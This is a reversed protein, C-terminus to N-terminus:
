RVFVRNGFRLDIYQLENLKGEYEQLIVALNNLQKLGDSDDSLDVYIDFGDKISFSAWHALPENMGISEVEIMYQGINRHVDSLVEVGHPTIVQANPALEERSQDFVVFIDDSQIAYQREGEGFVLARVDNLEADSLERVLVGEQDVFFLQEGHAWILSTVREEVTIRLTRGERTVQVNHLPFKTLMDDHLGLKDVFWIHNKPVVDWRKQQLEDWAFAEIEDPALTISGDVQVEDIYFWPLVITLWPIGIIVVLLIFFRLLRKTWPVIKQGSFYPNKYRDSTYKKAHHRKMFNRRKM